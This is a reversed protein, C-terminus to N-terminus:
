APSDTNPAPSDFAGALRELMRARCRISNANRGLSELEDALRSNDDAADTLAVIIAARELPGLQIERGDGTVIHM